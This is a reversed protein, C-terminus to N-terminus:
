QSLDSEVFNTFVVTLPKTKTNGAVSSVDLSAKWGDTPLLTTSNTMDSVTKGNIVLVLRTTKTDTQICRGELTLPTAGAADTGSGSAVKKSANGSGVEGDGRFITWSGDEYVLFEYHIAGIM